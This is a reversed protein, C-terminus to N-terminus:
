RGIPARRPRRGHIPTDDETGYAGQEPDIYLYSGAIYWVGGIRKAEFVEPMKDDRYQVLVMATETHDYPYPLRLYKTARIRYETKGPRFLGYKEDARFEPPCRLNGAWCAIRTEVACVPTNQDGICNSTAETRTVMRYQAEDFAFAGAALISICGFAICFDKM